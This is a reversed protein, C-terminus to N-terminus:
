GNREGLAAGGDPGGREESGRGHLAHLPRNPQRVRAAAFALAPSDFGSDLVGLDHYLNKPEFYSDWYSNSSPVGFLFAPSSSWSARVYTANQLTESSIVKHVKAEKVKETTTVALEARSRFAPASIKTEFHSPRSICALDLELVKVGADIFYAMSHKQLTADDYNREKFYHMLKQGKTQHRQHQHPITEDRNDKKKTRKSEEKRQKQYPQHHHNHNHPMSEDKSQEKKTRGSKTSSTPKGVQLTMFVM